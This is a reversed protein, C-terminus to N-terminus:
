MGEAITDSKGGAAVIGGGAEQSSRIGRGKRDRDGSGQTGEDRTREDRTGQVLYSARDACSTVATLPRFAPDILCGTPGHTAAM